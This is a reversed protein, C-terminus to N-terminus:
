LLNILLDINPIRGCDIRIKKRQGYDVHLRGDQVHIHQVDEWSPHHRGAQLGKRNIRVPGFHVWKGEKMGDVNLPRINKKKLELKIHEAIASVQRTSRGSCIIFADAYSTLERVDLAVIAEAKRGSVAELYPVISADFDENM